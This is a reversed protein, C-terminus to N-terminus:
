SLKIIKMGEPIVKVQNQDFEGLTLVISRNVVTAFVGRVREYHAVVNDFDSGGMFEHNESFADFVSRMNTIAKIRRIAIDFDVVRGILCFGVTKKALVLGAIVANWIFLKRRIQHAPGSHDVFVTLNDAEAIQQIVIRAHRIFREM